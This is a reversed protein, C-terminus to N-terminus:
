NKLLTILTGSKNSRQMDIRLTRVLRLFISGGITQVMIIESRKLLSVPRQGDNLHEM